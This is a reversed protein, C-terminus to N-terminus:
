DEHYNGRGPRPAKKQNLAAVEAMASQWQAKAASWGPKEHTSSMPTGDAFVAAQACWLAASRHELPITAILKWVRAGTLWLNPQAQWLLHGAYCHTSLWDLLVRVRFLAPLTRLHASLIDETVPADNTRRAILWSLGDQRREPSLRGLWGGIAAEGQLLATRSDPSPGPGDPSLRLAQHHATLALAYLAQVLEPASDLDIGEVVAPLGNLFHVLMGAGAPRFDGAMAQVAAAMTMARRRDSPADMRLAHLAALTREVIDLDAAQAAIIATLWPLVTIASAPEASALWRTRVDPSVWPLLAGIADDRCATPPLAAVQQLLDGAVSCCTEPPRWVTRTKEDYGRLQSALAGYLAAALDPRDHAVAGATDEVYARLATWAAFYQMPEVHRPIAAGILGDLHERRQQTLGDRGCCEVLENLANHVWTAPMWHRLSQGARLRQDSSFRPTDMENWFRQAAAAIGDPDPEFSGCFAVADAIASAQEAPLARSREMLDRWWRQPTATLTYPATDVLRNTTALAQLLLAQQAPGCQSAARLTADCVAEARAPAVPHGECLLGWAVAIDVANRQEAAGLRLAHGLWLGIDFPGADLFSRPALRQAVGHCQAFALVEFIALTLPVGKDRLAAAETALAAVSTRCRELVDDPAPRDQMDWIHFPLTAQARYPAPIVWALLCRRVQVALECFVPLRAPPRRELDLTAALILAWGEVAETWPLWSLREALARLTDVVAGERRSSAALRELVARLQWLSGLQRAQVVTDDVHRVLMARFTRSAAAVCQRDRLSLYHLVHVLPQSLRSWPDRLRAAAVPRALDITAAAGGALGLSGQAPGSGAPWDPGAAGAPAGAADITKRKM